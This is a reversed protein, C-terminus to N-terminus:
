AENSVKLVQGDEKSVSVIHSYNNQLKNNTQYRHDRDRETIASVKVHLHFQRKIKKGRRRYCESKNFIVIGQSPQDLMTSVYTDERSAANSHM